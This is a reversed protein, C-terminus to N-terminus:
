KGETLAYARIQKTEPEVYLLNEIQNKKGLQLYYDLEHGPAMSFVQVWEGKARMDCALRIAVEKQADKYVIMTKVEKTKTEINQRSLAILLNDISIKFGVAPADTGFQKMLSDYRGGSVIADGTGYTYGNFIIGTYYRYETVMCLDFSLYQQYGYYGMTKYLETMRRIAKHCKENTLHQGVEEVQEMSGTYAQIKSFVKKIDESLDLELLLNELAFFNKNKLLTLIEEIVDTDEIKAEEFLGELFGAHGVDIQFESLGCGKLCEIVLAVIEADADKGGDGIFEAGVETSEKLRGRYSSKNIFTNGLYGLRVPMDETSFYKCACRVVSPTMDPRLVLTNGERDFLKFMEKSVVSGKEKGFIDFFEFTPTQIGQYGYSNMLDQIIREIKIKKAYERNYIDRVGEPTHLLQEKKM